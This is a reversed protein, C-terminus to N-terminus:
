CFALCEYVYLYSGENYSSIDQICIRRIRRICGDQSALPHPKQIVKTFKNIYPQKQLSVLSLFHSFRGSLLSQRLFKGSLLESGSIGSVKWLTRFSEFPELFMGNHAFLNRSHGYVKWHGSVKRLGSIKLPIRFRKQTDPILFVFNVKIM